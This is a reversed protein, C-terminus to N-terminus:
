IFVILCSLCTVRVEIHIKRLKARIIIQKASSTKQLINLFGFTCVDMKGKHDFRLILKSVLFHTDQM